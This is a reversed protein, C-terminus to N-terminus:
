NSADNAFLFIYISSVDTQDLKVNTFDGMTVFSFHSSLNLLVMHKRHAPGYKHYIEHLKEISLSYCVKRREKNQLYSLYLLM